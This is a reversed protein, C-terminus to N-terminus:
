RAGGLTGADVQEALHAALTAADAHIAQEYDSM